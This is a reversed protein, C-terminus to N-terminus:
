KRSRRPAPTPAPPAAPEQVQRQGEFVGATASFAQKRAVLQQLTTVRGEHFAHRGEAEARVEAAVKLAARAEKLMQELEPVPKEEWSKLEIISVSSM